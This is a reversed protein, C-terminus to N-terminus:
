LQYRILITATTDDEYLLQKVSPLEKKSTQDIHDWNNEVIQLITSSFKHNAAKGEKKVIYKITVYSPNSLASLNSFILLLFIYSSKRNM